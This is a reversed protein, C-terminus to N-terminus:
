RGELDHLGIARARSLLVAYKRQRAGEGSPLPSLPVSPRAFLREAERDARAATALLSWLLVAIAVIAVALVPILVHYLTM